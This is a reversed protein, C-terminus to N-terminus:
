TTCRASHMSVQIFAVLQKLQGRVIDVFAHLDPNGAEIAAEAHFTFLRQHALLCMQMSTSGEAAVVKQLFTTHRLRTKPTDARGSASAFEEVDASAVSAAYQEALIEEELLPKPPQWWGEFLEEMCTTLRAQSCARTSLVIRKLWEEVHVGETPVEVDLDFREGRLGRLGLVSPFPTKDDLRLEVVDVSFCKCLIHQLHSLQSLGGLLELIETDSLFFFRGFRM